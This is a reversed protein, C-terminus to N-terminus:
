DITSKRVRYTISLLVLFLGAGVVALRQDFTLSQEFVVVTGLLGGVVPVTSDNLSRLYSSVSNRSVKVPQSAGAALPTSEGTTQGDASASREEAEVTAQRGLGLAERREADLYISPIDVDTGTIRELQLASVPDPYRSPHQETQRRKSETIEPRLPLAKLSCMAETSEVVVHDGATVGLDDMAARSLRCIDFGIDPHVSKRVRCIIPRKGLADGFQRRRSDPPSTDVVRISDGRCVGLAQRLDLGIGVEDRGVHDTNDIDVRGFVSCYVGGSDAELLLSEGHSARPFHERRGAESLQVNYQKTWRWNRTQTANLRASNAM